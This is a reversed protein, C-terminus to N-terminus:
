KLITGISKAVGITSEDCKILHKITTALIHTHSFVVRKTSEHRFTLIYEIIRVISDLKEKQQNMLNYPSM